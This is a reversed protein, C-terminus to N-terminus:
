GGTTKQSETWTKREQRIGLSERNISSFRQPRSDLHRHFNIALCKLEQAWSRWLLLMFTLFTLYKLWLLHSTYFADLSVINIKMHTCKRHFRLGVHNFDIRDQMGRWHLLTRLVFLQQELVFASVTKSPKYVRLYKKWRTLIFKVKFAWDGLISIADRKTGESFPSPIIAKNKIAIRDIYISHQIYNTSTITATPCLLQRYMSLETPLASCQQAPPQTNSDRRFSLWWKKKRGENPKM